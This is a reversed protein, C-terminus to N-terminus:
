RVVTMSKTLSKAGATLTYFYVGNPLEKTDVTVGHTGSNMLRSSIVEKVVEGVQNLIVLKVDAPAFLSFSIEAQETVPNPFIPNLAMGDGIVIKEDRISTWNKTADALLFNVRQITKNDVIMQKVISAYRSGATDTLPFDTEDTALTVLPVKDISPIIAPIMSGKDYALDKTVNVPTSWTNESVKKYSMYVDTTYTSDLVDPQPDAATTNPNDYIITADPVIDIPPNSTDYDVWKAVLYQNDETIAVEVEHGKAYYWNSNYLQYRSPFSTANESNWTLIFPANGTNLQAIRNVSWAGKSYKVEVVHLFQQNTTENTPYVRIIYSFEDIGTVKFGNPEYPRWGGIFCTVVDTPNPFVTRGYDTFLNSPMRANNFDSWTLGNDTSKSMMPVRLQNDAQPYNMVVAYINGDKDLDFNIRSQFGSAGSNPNPSSFNSSAWISPLISSIFEGNEISFGMFGYRFPDTDNDESSETRDASFAFAGSAGVYPNYAFSAWNYKDNPNNESPGTILDYTNAAAKLKLILASKERRGNSALNYNFGSVIYSLDAINASKDTNIMSFGAMGVLANPTTALPRSLWNTGNNTTTLLSISNSTQSTFPNYIIGFMKTTPDYQVRTNNTWYSFIADGITARQSRPAQLDNDKSILLSSPKNTNAPKVLVPTDDKTVLKQSPVAGAIGFGALAALMILKKM